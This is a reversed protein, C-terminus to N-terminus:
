ALTEGTFDETAAAGVAPLAGLGAAERITKLDIALRFFEAISGVKEGGLIEGSDILDRFEDFEAEVRELDLAAEFRGVVDSGDGGNIAM